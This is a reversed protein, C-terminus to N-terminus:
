DVKCLMLDKIKTLYRAKKVVKGEIENVKGNEIVLHKIKGKYDGIIKLCEEVMFHLQICHPSGDVTLVRIEEPPCRRMIGLLKFGAMNMHEKELCISLPVYGKAFQNFIEPYETEVCSGYLLIKRRSRIERSCVNVSMLEPM